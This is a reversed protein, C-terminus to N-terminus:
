LADRYLLQIESNTFAKKYMRLEDIKGNFYRTSLSSVFAKGLVIPATSNIPPSNKYSFETRQGNLYFEIYNKSIVLSCHYWIRPSIVQVKGNVILSDNETGVSGYVHFRANNGSIAFSFDRNVGSDFAKGLIGESDVKEPTELITDNNKFFWFSITKEDCNYVTNYPIEAYGNYGIFNIANGKKGNAFSANGFVSGNNNNLSQDYIGNDDFDWYGILFPSLDSISRNSGWEVNILLSGNTPSLYLNVNTMIGPEVSVTTAGSYVVTSDINLAQVLLNWEGIPIDEISVSALNTTDDYMFNFPISAYDNRSLIGKLDVVEAPANTLDIEFYIKSLELNENTDFVSTPSDSCSFLVIMSFFMIGIKTRNM